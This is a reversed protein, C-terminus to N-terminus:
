REDGLWVVSSRIGASPDALKAARPVVDMRTSFTPGPMRGLPRLKSTDMRFDDGVLGDRFHAYVVTGMVWTSHGLDVTSHLVCEFSVPAEGIRPAAIRECATATLGAADFENVEPAYEISTVVLEDLLDATAINVVFERSERVFALTDKVEKGPVVPPYVSFGLMPPDSSVVNFFSFPGINSKGQLSRCSVWAIPRPVVAGTLLKYNQRPTLTSVDYGAMRHEGAPARIESSM